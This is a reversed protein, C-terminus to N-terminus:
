DFSLHHPGGAHRPPIRAHNSAADPADVAVSGAADPLDYHLGEPRCSTSSLGQCWLRMNAVYNNADAHGLSIKTGTRRRCAGFSAVCCTGAVLRSMSGYIPPMAGPCFCALAWDYGDRIRGLSRSETTHRQHEAGEWTEGKWAISGREDRKKGQAGAAFNWKM